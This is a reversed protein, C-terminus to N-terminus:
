GKHDTLLNLSQLDEIPEIFSCSGYSTAFNARAAALQDLSLQMGEYIIHTDGFDFVSPDRANLMDALGDIDIHNHLRLAAGLFINFFGFEVADDITASEHTFPHHLGATAKFPVEAVCALDIFNATSRTDPFLDATIGGTRIKAGAEGGALAAMMGRLDSQLPLECFPFIERPLADIVAEIAGASSTKVEVTDIVARGFKGTAHQQNFDAIRELDTAFRDDDPPAILASILWPEADDDVPLVSEAGTEFESLRVAPMILRGLMWAHNGNYYDAYNRCTTPMDLKAPPFLGAYDIISNLFLHVSNM